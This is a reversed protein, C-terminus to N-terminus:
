PAEMVKAVWGSWMEKTTRSKTSPTCHSAFVEFETKKFSKLNTHATAIKLREDKGKSLGDSFNTVAWFEPKIVPVGVGV